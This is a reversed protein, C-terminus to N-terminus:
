YRRCFADSNGQGKIAIWEEQTHLWKGGNFRGGDFPMWKGSSVSQWEKKGAPVQEQVELYRAGRVDYM